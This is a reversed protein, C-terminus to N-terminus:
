TISPLPKRRLPEILAERAAGEEFVTSCLGLVLVTHLWIPLYQVNM